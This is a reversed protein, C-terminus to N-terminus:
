YNGPPQAAEELYKRTGRRDEPVKEVALLAEDPWINSLRSMYVSPQDSLASPWLRSDWRRRRVPGARSSFEPVPIPASEVVGEPMPRVPAAKPEEGTGPMSAEAAAGPDKEKAEETRELGDVEMPAAAEEGQLEMALLNKYVFSAPGRPAQTSRHSATPRFSSMDCSCGGSAGRCRGSTVRVSTQEPLELFLDDSGCRRASRGDCGGVGWGCGGEGRDEDGGRDRRRSGDPDEERSGSVETALTASQAPPPTTSLTPTRQAAVSEPCLTERSLDELADEMEMDSDSGSVSKPASDFEDYESEDAESAACPDPPSEVHIHQCTASPGVYESVRRSFNNMLEKKDWDEMAALSSKALITCAEIWALCKDTQESRVRLYESSLDATVLPNSPALQTQLYDISSGKTNEIERDSENGNMTTELDLYGLIMKQPLADQGVPLETDFPKSELKPEMSKRADEREEHMQGEPHEGIRDRECTEKEKDFRPDKPSALKDANEVSADKMAVETMKGGDRTLVNSEQIVRIVKELGWELSSESESESVSGSDSEVSMHSTQGSKEGVQPRTESDDEASPKREDYPPSPAREAATDIQEEPGSPVYPSMSNIEESMECEESAPQTTSPEEIPKREPSHEPSPPGASCVTVSVVERRQAAERNWRALRAAYERQRRMKDQRRKIREPDPGLHGLMFYERPYPTLNPRYEVPTRRRGSGSVGLSSSRAPPVGTPPVGAPSVGAAPVRQSSGGAARRPGSHGPARGRGTPTSTRSTQDPGAQRQSESAGARCRRPSPSTSAVVDRPSRPPSIGGRKTSSSSPTTEWHMKLKTVRPLSPTVLRANDNVDILSWNAPVIPTRQRGGASGCSSPRASHVASRRAAQRNTESDYSSSRASRPAMRCLARRASGSSRSGSKTSRQRSRGSVQRIIDSGCSSSRASLRASGRAAQDAQCDASRARIPIRSRGRGVGCAASDTPRIPPLTTPLPRAPVEGGAPGVTSARPRYTTQPAVPVKPFRSSKPRSASVKSRGTDASDNHPSNKHKRKELEIKKQHFTDLKKGSSIPLRSTKKPGADHTKPKVSSICGKSSATCKAEQPDDKNLDQSVVESSSAEVVKPTVDKEQKLENDKQESANDTEIDACKTDCGNIHPLCKEPDGISEDENSDSVLTDM